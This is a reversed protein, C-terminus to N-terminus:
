IRPRLLFDLHLEGIEHAVLMGHRLPQDLPRFIQLLLRAPPDGDLTEGARLHARHLLVVIERAGPLRVDGPEQVARRGSAKRQGLQHLQGIEDAAGLDAGLQEVIRLQPRLMEIGLVPADLHQQQEGVLGAVHVRGLLRDAGGVVHSPQSEPKAEAVIRSKTAARPPVGTPTSGVSCTSCSCFPVISPTNM